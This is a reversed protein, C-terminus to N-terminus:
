WRPETTGNVLAVPSPLELDSRRSLFYRRQRPEAVVQFRGKSIVQDAGFCDYSGPEHELPTLPSGVLRFSYEDTAGDDGSTGCSFIIHTDREFEHAARFHAEDDAGSFIWDSIARWEALPRAVQVAVFHRQKPALVTSDNDGSGGEASPITRRRLVVTTTSDNFVTFGVAVYLNKQDSEPFRVPLEVDNVVRLEEHPVFTIMPSQGDIRARIAEAVLQRSHSEEARALALAGNAARAAEGSAKASRRTEWAQWAVVGAALATVILM